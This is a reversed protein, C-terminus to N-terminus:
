PTQSAPQEQPSRERLWESICMEIADRVERFKVLREEEGGTAAAPDDFAWHLRAGGGPFIPCTEKARNCVTVLVGFHIKGLYEDLSKARHGALDFGREAMVEVTMPHIAQPELGASCVDFQDGAYGRLFAEAMQSRASNESCIFLVRIKAMTVGPPSQSSQM